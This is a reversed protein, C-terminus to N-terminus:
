AGALANRVADQVKIRLDPSGAMEATLWAEAKAALMRWEDERDAFRRQLADLAALTAVCDGKGRLEPLAALVGQLTALPVGLAEALPAALEWRGNARQLRVLTALVDSPQGPRDGMERKARAAGKSTSQMRLLVAPEASALM